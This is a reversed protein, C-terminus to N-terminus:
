NPSPSTPEDSMWYERLHDSVIRLYAPNGDSATQFYCLRPEGALHRNFANDVVPTKTAILVVGLREHYFAEVINVEEGDDDIM